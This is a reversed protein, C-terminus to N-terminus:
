KNRSFNYSIKKNPFIQSIEEHIREIGPGFAILDNHHCKPCDTPIPISYECHHCNLKKTKRHEVLYISCNPCEFKYGCGNCIKIPAFGRRNLYILSQEGKELTLTIAKIAAKSIFHNPELQEETMDILNIKPMESENFRTELDIRHYKGLDCNVLSELSPTASALIVEADEFKARAVAM